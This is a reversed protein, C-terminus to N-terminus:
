FLLKNFEILSICQQNFFNGYLIFVFYHQKYYGMCFVEIKTKLDKNVDTTM